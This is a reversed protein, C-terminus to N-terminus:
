LHVWVSKWSRKSVNSLRRHGGMYDVVLGDRIVEAYQMNCAVPNNDKDLVVLVIYATGLDVGLKLGENRDFPFTTEISKKEIECIYSDIRDFSIASM